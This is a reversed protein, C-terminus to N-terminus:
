RDTCSEAALFRRHLVDWSGANRLPTIRRALDLHLLRDGETAECLAAKSSGVELQYPRTRHIETPSHYQSSRDAKKCRGDGCLLGVAEVVHTFRTRLKARAFSDKTGGYRPPDSSIRETQARRIQESDDKMAGFLDDSDLDGRFYARARFLDCGFVIFRRPIASPQQIMRSKARHHEDVGKLRWLWWRRLWM